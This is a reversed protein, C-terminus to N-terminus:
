ACAATSTASCSAPPLPRTFPARSRARAFARHLPPSPAAASAVCGFTAVCIVCVIVLANVAAQGLQTASSAGGGGGGGGGSGGGGGGAAAAGGGYVLYNNLGSAMAADGVPDRVRAVVLTALAMTLFVPRVVASLHELTYGDDEDEADEEDAAGAAGEGSFPAVHARAWAEEEEARAREESGQQM